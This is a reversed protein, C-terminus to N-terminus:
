KACWKVFDHDEGQGTLVIGVRVEVAQYGSPNLFLVSLSPQWAGTSIQELLPGQGQDKVGLQHLKEATGALPSRKDKL